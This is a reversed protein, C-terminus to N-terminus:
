LNINRFPVTKTTPLKVWTLQRQPLKRILLSEFPPIMMGKQGSFSNQPSFRGHIGRLCANGEDDNQSTLM